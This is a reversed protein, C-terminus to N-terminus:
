RHKRGDRTLGTGASDPRQPPGMWQIVRHYVFLLFKRQVEPGYGATAIMLAYPKIARTWHFSVTPTM